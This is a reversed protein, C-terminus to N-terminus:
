DEMNVRGDLVRQWEPHRKIFAAVFPCLPVLKLNNEKIYHLTKEIIASGAGKGELVIPVETHTLYIAKLSQRYEILALHNEVRMEFRKEEKNNLLELEQYEEKM